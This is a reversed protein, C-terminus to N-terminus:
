SNRKRQRKANPSAALTLDVGARELDDEQAVYLGISVATAGRLSDSSDPQRREFSSDARLLLDYIQPRLERMFDDFEARSIIGSVTRQMRDPVHGKRHMVLNHLTTQLLEDIQRTAFALSREPSKVHNVMISGLLAIRDGSRVVVEAAECAMVVVERFAKKPMFRRVLTEFTPGPGEIPLVRPKGDMDLYVPARSWELLVAGLGTFDRLLQGSVNPAVKLGTSRKIARSMEAPKVGFQGLALNLRSYLEVALDERMQRSSEVRQKASREVSRSRPPAKSRGKV